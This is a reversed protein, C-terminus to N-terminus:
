DSVINRDNKLESYYKHFLFCSHKRQLLIIFNLPNIYDILILTSM